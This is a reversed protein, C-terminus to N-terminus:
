TIAGLGDNNPNDDNLDFVHNKGKITGPLQVDNVYFNGIAGLVRQDNFDVADGKNFQLTRGSLNILDIDTVRPSGGNLPDPIHAHWVCSNATSAAGIYFLPVKDVHTFDNHEDIHGAIVTVLPAHKTDCPARLLLHGSVFNPSADFIPLVAKSRLNVGDLKVHTNDPINSGAVGAEFSHNAFAVSTTLTAAILFVIVSISTVAKLVLKNTGSKNIDNVRTM